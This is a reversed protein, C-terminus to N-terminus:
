RWSDEVEVGMFALGLDGPFRRQQDANNWKGGPPFNQGSWLSEVTISVSRQGPGEWSISPASMIGPFLRRLPVLVDATEPDFVAFHIDAARGEIERAMTKVSRVFDLDVGTITIQVAPASGFQPDEIEGLSVLRGGIPDTVGRWQHGGIMVRGVGNHLRALGSPLDLAAFWARGVHPASLADLDAESFISSM